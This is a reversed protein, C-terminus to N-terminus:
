NPGYRQEFLAWWGLYVEMAKLGQSAWLSLAADAQRERLTCGSCLEQSHPITNQCGEGPCHKM